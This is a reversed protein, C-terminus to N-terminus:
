QAPPKQMIVVENPKVLDLTARVREDLLDPDLHDPKLDDARQALAAHEARLTDLRAAEGHLEDTLQRWALFGRDGEVLHYAFYGFLTLGLVPGVVHRARRRLERLVIM